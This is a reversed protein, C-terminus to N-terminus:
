VQIRICIRPLCPLCSTREMKCYNQNMGKFVSFVGMIFDGIKPRVQTWFCAFMVLNLFLPISPM